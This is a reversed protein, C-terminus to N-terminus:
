VMHAILQWSIIVLWVHCHNDSVHMKELM